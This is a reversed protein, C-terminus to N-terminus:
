KGVLALRAFLPRHDSSGSRPLTRAEIGIFNADHFVYDLRLVPPLPVKRNGAPFTFGFGSGAEIFTDTYAATVADYEDYQETMNFDGVMIVPVDIDQARELLIQIAASHPQLEFGKEFSFAPVPHSSFVRIPTGDLVIQAWMHGLTVQLRQNQWYDQDTIPYRSFIGQGKHAEEQPYLAQYPYTDALTASFHDAAPISLEQM